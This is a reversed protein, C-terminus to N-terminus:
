GQAERIIRTRDNDTSLTRASYYHVRGITRHPTNPREASSWHPHRKWPCLDPM